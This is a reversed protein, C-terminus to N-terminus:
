LTAETEILLHICQFDALFLWIVHIDRPREDTAGRHLDFQGIFLYVDQLTAGEFIKKFIKLNYGLYFWGRNDNSHRWELRILMFASEHIQEHRTKPFVLFDM